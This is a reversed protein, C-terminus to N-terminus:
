RANSFTAELRWARRTPAFAAGPSLSSAEELTGARTEDKLAEASGQAIIKGHDIVAIEGAV